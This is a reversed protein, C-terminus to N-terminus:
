VAILLLRPLIIAKMVALPLIKGQGYQLANGVDVPSLTEWTTGHDQSRYVNIGGIVFISSSSTEINAVSGIDMGTPLGSWTTGQDTSFFFGNPSNFGVYATSDPGVELDHVYGGNLGLNTRTSVTEASVFFPVMGMLFVSAVALIFGNKGRM